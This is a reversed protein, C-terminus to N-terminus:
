LESKENEYYQKVTKLEQKVTEKYEVNTWSSTSNRVAHSGKHFECKNKENKIRKVYWEGRYTTFLEFGQTLVFSLYMKNNDLIIIHESVTIGDITFQVTAGIENPGGNAYIPNVDPWIVELLFRYDRIGKWIEECKENIEIM